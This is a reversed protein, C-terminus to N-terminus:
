GPGPREMRMRSIQTHVSTVPFLVYGHSRGDIGRVHLLIEAGPVVLRQLDRLVAALRDIM